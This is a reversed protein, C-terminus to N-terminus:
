SLHRPALGELFNFAYERLLHACVDIVCQVSPVSRGRSVRSDTCPDAELRWGGKLEEDSGIGGKDVFCLRSVEFFAQLLLITLGWYERCYFETDLPIFPYM